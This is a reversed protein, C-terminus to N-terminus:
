AQASGPEVEFRPDNAIHAYHMVDGMGKLHVAGRAELTETGTLEATRVDVLIEGGLALACLRSALNAATGIATYEMRSSSGIAGVTVVGSSVGVGVALPCDDRSWHRTIAEAARLVRHSLALGRQAHGPVPIPAGVAIMIGDGSYALITAQFEAAVSGVAEYYEGLLRTVLNSDHANSFRTFGRLDCCVVTLELKQPKLTYALGRLAVQEVVERSLFRSLLRGREGQVTHYRIGGLLFFFLGPLSTLVNYGAPLVYNLFFFPAAVAVCVVRQREAEDVRQSFVILGAVVVLTGMLGVPIAFTWFYPGSCGQAHGLCFLFRSMREVPLWAGLALYGLTVLSFLVACRRLWRRAAATPQAARAVRLMWLLLGVMVGADLVPLGVLWWTGVGDPHLIHQAPYTANAVGVMAVAFSLARTAPSQPDGIYYALAVGVGSVGICLSVMVTATSDMPLSFFDLYNM